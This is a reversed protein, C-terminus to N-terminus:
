TPSRDTTSERETTCNSCYVTAIRHPCRWLRARERGRLFLILSSYMCTLNIKIYYALLAKRGNLVIEFSNWILGLKLCWYYITETKPQKVMRLKTWMPIRAQKCDAEAARAVVICGRGYGTQTGTEKKLFVDNPSICSSVHGIGKQGSCKSNVKTEEKDYLPSLFLFWRLMRSCSQIKVNSTLSCVRVVLSLMKVCVNSRGLVRQWQRAQVM